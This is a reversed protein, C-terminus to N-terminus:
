SDEIPENGGLQDRALWFSHYTTQHGSGPEALPLETPPDPWPGAKGRTRAQWEIHTHRAVDEELGHGARGFTTPAGVVRVRPDGVRAAAAAISRSRDIRRVRSGINMADHGVRLLLHRLLPAVALLRRLCHEFKDDDIFLAPYLTVTLHTVTGLTELLRHQWTELTCCVFHLAWVARAAQAERRDTISCAALQSALGAQSTAAGRCWPGVPRTSLHTGVLLGGMQSASIWAAEELLPAHGLLTECAAAALASADAVDHCLGGADIRHWWVAHLLPWAAPSSRLMRVFRQAAAPSALEVCRLMHPLVLRRLAHSACALPLLARVDLTQAVYLAVVDALLEYPLM